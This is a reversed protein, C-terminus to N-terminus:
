GSRPTSAGLLISRKPGIHARNCLIIIRVEQGDVSKGKRNKHKEHECNVRARHRETNWKGLNALGDM